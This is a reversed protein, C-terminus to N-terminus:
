NKYHYQKYLIKGRHENEFEHTYDLHLKSIGEEMFFEANDGVIEASKNLDQSRFFKKKRFMRKDFMDKHLYKCIYAGMNTVRDIRKINIFGHQWIDELKKAPVYKLNCLLHYHVAGRKQFEVIAIYQFNPFHKNMRRIYTNFLRNAKELDFMEWGFTLTLFKNLQPNSNVLRRIETRTRNVSSKRKERIAEKTHKIKKPLRPRRPYGRLVNKTQYEYYEIHKGSIIVKKNFVELM